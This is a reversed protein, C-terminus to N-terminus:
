GLIKGHRSREGSQDRDCHEEADVDARLGSRAVDGDDDVPRVRGVAEGQRLSSPATPQQIRSRRKGTKTGSM